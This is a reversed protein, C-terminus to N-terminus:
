KLKLFQRLALLEDKEIGKTILLIAFYGAISLALILLIHFQLLVLILVTMVASALLPKSSLKFINVAYGQKRAFYFLMALVFFETIVTSIAAGIFGWMKIFFLNLVVNLVAAVATTLTFLLPKNVANLLHGTLSSLFIAVEAWILIQLALSAGAFESGYIFSMFREALITAGIAMPLGLTLLYYFSKRYLNQLVAKDTLHLKSMAPFVAGIVAAPIFYLADLFRYSANYLGTEAPGRILGIMVTDIRFYIALFVGTFWFPLAKKLFRKQFELNFGFRIETLRSVAFASVAFVVFYATAFAMALGLVGYGARLTLIGIIVILSMELVRSIGIYLMRQHAQFVGLFLDKISLFFTAIAVIYVSFLVEDTANTFNIGIITVLAALISFFVKMTLVNKFFHPSKKLDRAAERVFLTSLGIDNLVVFLGTFAFIFSYDGLGNKGLVHAITLFLAFSMLRSIVDSIFLFGANKFVINFVKM